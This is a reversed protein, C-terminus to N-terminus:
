TRQGAAAPGRARAIELELRLRELALRERSRVRVEYLRLCALVFINLLSLAVAPGGYTSLFALPTFGLALQALDKPLDTSFIM